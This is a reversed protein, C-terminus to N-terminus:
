RRSSAPRRNAPGQGARRRGKARRAVRRGLLRQDVREFAVRRHRRRNEAAVRLEVLQTENRAMGVLHHAVIGVGGARREVRELQLVRPAEIVRRRQRPVIQARIARPQGHGVCAGATLAFEWAPPANLSATWAAARCATAPRCNTGSAAHSALMALLAFESAGSMVRSAAIRAKSITRASDPRYSLDPGIYFAIAGANRKDVFLGLITPGQSAAKAILDAM